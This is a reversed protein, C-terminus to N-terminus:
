GHGPAHGRHLDTLASMSRPLISRRAGAVCPAGLFRRLPTDSCVPTLNRSRNWARREDRQLAARVLDRAAPHPESGDSNYLESVAANPPESM